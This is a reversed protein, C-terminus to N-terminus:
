KEKKNMIVYTEALKDHLGQNKEDFIVWIVVTMWIASLVDPLQTGLLELKMYDDWDKVALFNEEQFLDYSVMMWSFALAFEFVYRKFAQDITIAQFAKNTVRLKLLIKGPTASYISEFIPKYILGIIGIGLDIAYIKLYIINYLALLSLPLLIFGDLFFALLRQRFSAYEVSPNTSINETM